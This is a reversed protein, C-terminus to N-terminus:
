FYAVVHIRSQLNMGEPPRYAPLAGIAARERVPSWSSGGSSGEGRGRPSGHQFGRGRVPSIGGSSGRLV